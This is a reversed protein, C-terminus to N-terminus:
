RLSARMGAAAALNRDTSVAVLREALNTPREEAHSAVDFPASLPLLQERHRILSLPHLEHRDDTCRSLHALLKDPQEADLM